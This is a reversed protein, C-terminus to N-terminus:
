LKSKSSILHFIQKIRMFISKGPFNSPFYNASPLSFFTHGGVDDNSNVALNCASPFRMLRYSRAEFLLDSSILAANSTLYRDVVRHFM